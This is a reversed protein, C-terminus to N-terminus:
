GASATLERRRARVVMTWGLRGFVREALGLAGLAPSGLKVYLSDLPYPLVANVREFSEIAFHRRLLSRLEGASLERVREDYGYQEVRRRLADALNMVSLKAPTSLTLVGGPRLVRHAEEIAARPDPLYELVEAMLVRDFSGDAFSLAQADEAQFRADPALRRAQEIAAPSVDTATVKAGLELLARTYYGSGCGIELVEDGAEAELAAMVSEFRVGYFWRRYASPSQFTEAVEDPEAAEREYYERLQDELDVFTAGLRDALRRDHDSDGVVTVSEAGEAWAEVADSEAKLAGLADRDFVMEPPPLDRTRFFADVVDRANHTVVAVSAGDAVHRRYLSQGPPLDTGSELGALEAATMAQAARPDDTLRFGLEFIGASDTSIGKEGALLELEARLASWDTGLHFLTDDFDFLVVDRSM